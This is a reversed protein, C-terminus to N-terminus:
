HYASFPSLLSSSLSISHDFGHLHMCLVVCIIDWMCWSHQATWAWGLTCLSLPWFRPLRTLPFLSCRCSQFYTHRLYLHSNLLPLSFLCWLGVDNALPNYPASADEDDFRFHTIYTSVGVVFTHTHTYTHTHTHTSIHITTYMKTQLYAHSYKHPCLFSDDLLSFRCDDYLRAQLM